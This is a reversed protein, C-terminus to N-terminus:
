LVMNSSALEAVAQLPEDTIQVVLLNVFVQPQYDQYLGCGAEDPEDSSVYTSRLFPIRVQSCRPDGALVCGEASLHFSYDGGLLRDAMVQEPPPLFSYVASV